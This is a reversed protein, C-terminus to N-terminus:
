STYLIGTKVRQEGVHVRNLKFRLMSTVRREKKQETDTM